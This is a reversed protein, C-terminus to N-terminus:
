LVYIPALPAHLSGWGPGGDCIPSKSGKTPGCGYRHSSQLGWDGGGYPPLIRQTNTGLTLSNNPCVVEGLEETAFLCLMALVALLYIKVQKM